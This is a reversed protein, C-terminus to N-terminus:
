VREFGRLPRAQLGQWNMQCPPSLTGEFTPLTTPTAKNKMRPKATNRASNM